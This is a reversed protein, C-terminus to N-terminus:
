MAFACQAAGSFSYSNDLKLSSFGLFLHKPVIGRLGVV